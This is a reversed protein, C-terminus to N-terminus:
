MCVRLTGGRGWTVCWWTGSSIVCLLSMSARGASASSDNYHNINSARGAGASSTTITTAATHAPVTHAPRCATHVCALSRVSRQERALQEPGQCLQPDTPQAEHASFSRAASHSRQLLQANPSHGMSRGSRIVAPQSIPPLGVCAGCLCSCAHPMRVYLICVELISTIIRAHAIRWAIHVSEINRREAIAAGNKPACSSTPM